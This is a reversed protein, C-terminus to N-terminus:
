RESVHCKAAEEELAHTRANAPSGPRGGPSHQGGHERHTSVANLVRSIVARGPAMGLHRDAPAHAVGADPLRGEGGGQLRRRRRLAGAAHEGAQLCQLGPPRDRVRRQGAPEAVPGADRPARHAGGGRLGGRQLDAPRPVGRVHGPGHRRRCSCCCGGILSRIPRRRLQRGRPFRVHHLLLASVRHLPGPIHRLQSEGGAGGRHRDQAARRARHGPGEGPRRAARAAPADRLSLQRRNGRAGREPGGRGGAAAHVAGPGRAHRRRPRPVPLRRPHHARVPRAELGGAAPRRDRGAAPPRRRHPPVLSPRRSPPRPGPSTRAVADGAQHRLRRRARPPLRRVGGPHGPQRHLARVQPLPLVRLLARPPPRRLRRRPPLQGAAPPLPLRPPRPGRRLLRRGQADRRGPVRGALTDAEGAGGRRLPEGAARGGRVGAARAGASDRGGAHRGRRGAARADRQGRGRGAPCGGGCLEQRGWRSVVLLLIVVLHQERWHADAQSGARLRRVPRGARRRRGPLPDAAARLHQQLLRRLAPSRLLRRQGHRHLLHTAFSDDPAAGAGVGGMGMAMELQELKQAVDAMDSARVKYGLAALLEDVEEGEGAAASVMMKDESSGMGGGGGGSGGADQYERKM